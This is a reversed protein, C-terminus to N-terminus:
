NLYLLPEVQPVGTTTAKELGKEMAGAKLYEMAQQITRDKRETRREM